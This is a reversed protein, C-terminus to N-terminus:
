RIGQYAPNPWSPIPLVAGIAGWYKFEHGRRLLPNEFYTWSLRAILYAIVAALGNAAVLEWAAVHPFVHTILLQWGFRVEDHILYLCYSVRGIEALWRTRAIVAIPGASRTMAVIMVLAYFIAIWTYGV